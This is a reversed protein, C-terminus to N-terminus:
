SWAQGSDRHSLFHTLTAPHGSSSGRLQHQSAYCERPRETASTSPLVGFRASIRRRGDVLESFSCLTPPDRPNGHGQPVRPHHSPCTGRPRPQHEPPATPTSYVCSQCTCQPRDTESCGHAIDERTGADTLAMEPPQLAPPLFPLPWAAGPMQGQQLLPLECQWAQPLPLLYTHAQSARQGVAESSSRM